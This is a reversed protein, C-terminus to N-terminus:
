KDLEYGMTKGKETAPIGKTMWVPAPEEKLYHDFFQLMRKSLDKNNPSRRKENHPQGNYNLMWVPKNLRRLAVFYEIGQYWPVAGDGDNHRILVPTNVKPTYFVPSNEIYHLPKEWLTGGIRSQTKEYQYMRSRGSEWRIGGYASTMNSVPAGISAASFLDTKTIIYGAQYGGWSQGQIGIHDKDLYPRETLLALTGSVVYNFASEGPYGEKYRINPMFVFYGNSVYFTPNIISRSPKPVYYDHIENSHLRYFYVLMPYKKNPDFDEPKYLLGEEENGDSTIWTVLEVDGWLYDNQQPNENSIKESNSFDLSSTSLDYYEKFNSKQWIIRDTNKAKRPTNYNYDDMVLKEPDTKSNLTTKYFGSQKNIHNFAELLLDEKPDIYEQDRDLDVFDFTVNNKRGFNNTLNLPSKKMLPDIKWIDYRDNILIYEDNKVWGSIGYPYADMPYDNEEDFFNVNIKQTLNQTTKNKISYAFWCKETFAYWYIYKGEPSIGIEAKLKEKFLVKKGTEINVIYIDYYEHYDWSILKEYPENDYGLAFVGNGKQSLEIDTIKEDELQIVKNQDINYVTLYSKKLDDKLESLQQPQLRSDTWSWIDLIVKEENLLTDEAEPEPMNATGFFLRSDDDSFFIKGNESVTWKEPISLTLTDVIKVPSGEKIDLYYSIGERYDLSVLFIEMALVYDSLAWNAIGQYHYLTGFDFIQIKLDKKRM